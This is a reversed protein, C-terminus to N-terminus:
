KKLPCEFDDLDSSSTPSGTISICSITIKGKIKGLKVAFLVSPSIPFQDLQGSLWHFTFISDQHNLRFARAAYSFWPSESFIFGASIQDSSDSRAKLTLTYTTNAKLSCPTGMIADYEHESAKVVNFTVGSSDFTRTYEGINEDSYNFKWYTTDLLDTSIIQDNAPFVNMVILLLLGYRLNCSPHFPLFELTM